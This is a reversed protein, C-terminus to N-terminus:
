KFKTGKFESKKLYQILSGIKNLLKETRELHEEFQAQNIYNFDLARYAQSRTEACSGKAISLFQTFEKNGDRDFGQVRHFLNNHITILDIELIDKGM